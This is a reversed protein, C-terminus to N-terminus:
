EGDYLSVLYFNWDTVVVRKYTEDSDYVIWFSYRPKEDNDNKSYIKYVCTAFVGGWISIDTKTLDFYKRERLWINESVTIISISRSTTYLLKNDISSMKQILSDLITPM